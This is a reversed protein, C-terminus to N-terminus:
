KLQIQGTNSVTPTPTIRRPVGALFTLTANPSPTVTPSPSPTNTPTNTPTATATSTPTATTCPATQASAAKPQGQAVISVIAVVCLIIVMQAAFQPWRKLTRGKSQLSETKNNTEASM